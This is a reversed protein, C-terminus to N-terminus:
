ASAKMVLTDAEQSTPYGLRRLRQMVEARQAAPLDLVTVRLEGARYNLSGIAPPAANGADQLAGQLASLMADLDTPMPAATALALRQVERQMQAPADIVTRVNPFTQLLVRQIDARGQALQREQQWALANLGIVNVLLLSLVAQRALRWRPARLWEIGPRQARKRMLLGRALDWPAHAAAQWRQHLPWAQVPRHLQQEALAVLEPEASLQVPVPEDAPLADNREADETVDGVGPLAHESPLVWALTEPTLALVSISLPSCAVVTPAATHGTVHLRQAGPPGWEPLVRALPRGVAALGQVAMALWRRECAAVWQPRGPGGPAPALAFHLQAPEDLLQDELLGDLVAKLRPSGQGVGEPLTVQHWSLARVPALAINEHGPLDPHPLQAPLCEGAEVAQGDVVLVFTLVTEATLAELPLAIILQSM